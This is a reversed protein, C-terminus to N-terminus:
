LDSTDFDAPLQWVDLIGFDDGLQLWGLPDSGDGRSFEWLGLDRDVPTLHVFVESYQGSPLGFAAASPGDLPSCHLVGQLGLDLWSPCRSAARTHPEAAWSPCQAGRTVEVGELLPQVSFVDTGHSTMTVVVADDNDIITLSDMYFYDPM